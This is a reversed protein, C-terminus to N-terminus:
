GDLHSLMAEITSRLLPVHNKCVGFVSDADLDFYQHSIIDRIGKVGKWDVAPYKPLLLGDTIKDLNKCSEGIAMLMMCIGDLRDIGEDSSTFDDGNRIGAFRREIKAIAELMQGLIERVLLDKHM